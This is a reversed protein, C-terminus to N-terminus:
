EVPGSPLLGAHPAAGLPKRTPSTLDLHTMGGADSFVNAAARRRNRFVIAGAVLGCALAGLFCLGVFAFSNFFVLAAKYAEENVNLGSQSIPDAGKLMKISIAYDVSGVVREAAARDVVGTAELMFNGERKLIRHAREEPALADFAARLSREADAALQPTQYDVLVLRFPEGGPQEFDAVAADAGGAGFRFVDAAVDPRSRRLAELSPAYRESGAIRGRAPLQGLLPASPAPRGIGAVLAAAIEDRAAADGGEVIATFPGVRLGLSREGAWADDGVTAVAAQEPRLYRLMAYATTEDVLEVLTVRASGYSRTAASASPLAAAEGLASRTPASVASTAARDGLREGLLAASSRKAEGADPKVAYVKIPQQAADARRVAGGAGALSAIAAFFLMSFSLKRGM